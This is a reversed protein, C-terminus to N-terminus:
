KTVKVLTSSCTEAQILAMKMCTLVFVMCLFVSYTDLAGRKVTAIKIINFVWFICYLLTLDTIKFHTSISKQQM